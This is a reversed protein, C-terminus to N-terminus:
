QHTKVLIQGQHRKSEFFGAFAFGATMESVPFGCNSLTRRMRRHDGLDNRESSTFGGSRPPVLCPDAESGPHAPANASGITTYPFFLACAPLCPLTSSALIILPSPPTSSM